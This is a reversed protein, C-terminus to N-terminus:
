TWGASGQRVFIRLVMWVLLRFWWDGFSGCAVLFVIGTCKRGVTLLFPKPTTTQEESLLLDAKM